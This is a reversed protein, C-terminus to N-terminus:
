VIKMALRNDTTEGVHCDPEDLDDMMDSTSFNYSLHASLSSCFVKLSIRCFLTPSDFSASNSVM